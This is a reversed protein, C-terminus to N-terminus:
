ASLTFSGGCGGCRVDVFRGVREAVAPTSEGIPALRWRPVNRPDRRRRRALYAALWADPRSRGAATSGAAARPPAAEGTELLVKALQREAEIEQQHRYFRPLIPAM